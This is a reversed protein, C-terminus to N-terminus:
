ATHQGGGTVAREVAVADFPLVTWGAAQLEAHEDPSSSDPLVVLHQAPWCLSVPIGDAIEDGVVPVPVVGSDALARLLVTEDDDAARMADAWEEPLDATAAQQEHEAAIVTAFTEATSEDMWYSSPDGPIFRSPMVHGFRRAARDTFALAGAVSRTNPLGVSEALVPAPIPEPARETLAAFIRRANDGIESWYAAADDIDTEPDWRDVVGDAEATVPEPRYLQRVDALRRGDELTWFTWGNTVAGKVHRGASSPSSFTTDGVRLGGDDTIVAPTQDWAGPRPAVTTGPVLHGARVLDGVSISTQGSTRADTVEGSHGEPVPWVTLMGDLLVQTRIDIRQEDWEDGAAALLRSNLLLVDHQAIKTRKGGRGPWAANSASSNLKSTLLTLNGLRHVHANRDIEAELGDVPWKKEWSQPLVHEIPYTGRVVQQADYEARLGGEAAELLMRLRSRSFRRYVREETLSQRIEADGPWYTSSVRFSRLTAEVRQILEDAPVGQTARLLDAVARGLSSTVLHLMTRRVLWSEVRQVVGDIVDQPLPTGPQHLRLLIPTLSESGIARMRYMCMQVPDLTRHPDAAARTWDEYLEAQSRMDTLVDLMPRGAEHEMYHKFRSFTARPRVEEAVTAALWQNLFLAAHTTTTRGYAIETEWFKTDFPWVQSYAARADAGEKSLRQFVLNKVLDAATLPTGRANLTEFIAQSDESAQLDIVVLQLGHSLVGALVDARREVVAPTPVGGDHDPLDLWQAVQRVFYGHAMAVRSSAHTLNEHAVPLEANMVEEFAARDRNTHRVKLRDAEDVVFAPANHTLAGLQEAFRDMGREEFVAGAADMLLQLTTLRQQGDIVNRVALNGMPTESAQMVIAGLFHTAGYGTPEQRLTALRVVDQWLPEWQEEEEWVYPRQFLPVM